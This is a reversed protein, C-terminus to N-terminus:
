MATTQVRMQLGIRTCASLDISRETGLETAVERWWGPLTDEGEINEIGHFLVEGNFLLADGSELSCRVLRDPAHPHYFAFRATAGLNIIMVWGCPPPDQHFGLATETGYMRAWLSKTELKDPLQLATAPPNACHVIPAAAQTLSEDACFRYCVGDHRWGRAEGIVAASKGRSPGWGRRAATKVLADAACWRMNNQKVQEEYQERFKSYHNKALEVCCPMNHLSGAAGSAAAHGRGRGRGQGRGRGGGLGLGPLWGTNYELLQHPPAKAGLGSFAASPQVNLKRFSDKLLEQQETENLMGRFLVANLELFEAAVHDPHAAKRAFEKREERAQLRLALTADVDSDGLGTGLKSSKNAVEEERWVAGLEQAIAADSATAAASSFSAPAAGGGLGGSPSIIRRRKPVLVVNQQELFMQAASSVDGGSGVLAIWLDDASRDPFAESLQALAQDRNTSTFSIASSDLPHPAHQEDM